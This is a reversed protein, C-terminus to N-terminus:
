LTSILRAIIWLYLFGLITAVVAERLHNAKMDGIRGIVLTHIQSEPGWAM